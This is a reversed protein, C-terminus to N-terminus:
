KPVIVSKVNGDMVGTNRALDLTLTDGSITSPGQLLLVSGMMIIQGQELSYIASQAEATEAGNTFLVNDTAVVQTIQSQDGSYTIEIKNASLRLDGQAIRANGTFVAQSSEQDISLQDAAMEVPQKTDHAGGSLAIAGQAFAGCGIITCVFAATVTKLLM